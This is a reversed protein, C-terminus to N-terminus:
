FSGRLSLRASTANVDVGPTVSGTRFRWILGAAAAALGTGMLVGGLAIRRPARDHAERVSSWPTDLKAEEVEAKDKLGLPLLVAGVLVLVGGVSTVVWPWQGKASRTSVRPPTAASPRAEAPPSPEASPRPEREPPSTEDQKKSASREKLVRVRGAVEARNSADPVQALYGEFAELAVQDNRLRDAAAGINFLLVPKSTLRYARQFDDLADGFRGAEFAARGAEFRARGEIENISSEDAVAPAVQARLPQASLMLMLVVLARSPLLLPYTV